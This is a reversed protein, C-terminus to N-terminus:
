RGHLYILHSLQERNTNTGKADLKSLLVLAEDHQQNKYYFKVLTTAYKPHVKDLNKLTEFVKPANKQSHYLHYLTELIWQNNPKLSNAKQLAKEALQFKNLEYYNKGLEFNIAANDPHQSNCKELLDIAKDYNEIGKQKLAEFFTNQFEDSVDGLDDNRVEQAQITLLSLLTIFIYLFHKM